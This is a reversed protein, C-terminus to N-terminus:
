AKKRNKIQNININETNFDAFLPTNVQLRQDHCFDHSNPLLISALSVVSEDCFKLWSRHGRFQGRSAM